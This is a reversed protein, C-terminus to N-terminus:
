FQMREIRLKLFLYIIDIAYLKSTLVRCVPSYTVQEIEINKSQHPNVLQM